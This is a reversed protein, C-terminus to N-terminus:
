WRRGRADGRRSRRCRGPRPGVVRRRSGVYCRVLSAWAASSTATPCRTTGRWGAACCRPRTTPIPTSTRTASARPRHAPASRDALDIRSAKASVTAEVGTVREALWLYEALDLYRTM